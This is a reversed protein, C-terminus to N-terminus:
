IGDRTGIGRCPASFHRKSGREMASRQPSIVALTAKPWHAMFRMRSLMCASMRMQIGRLRQTIPSACVAYFSTIVQRLRMFTMDMELRIDM